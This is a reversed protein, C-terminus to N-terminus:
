PTGFVRVVSSGPTQIPSYLALSLAPNDSAVVLVFLESVSVCSSGEVRVVFEFALESMDSDAGFWGFCVNVGVVRLIQAM